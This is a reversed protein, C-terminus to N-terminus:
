KVGGLERRTPWQNFIKGLCSRNLICKTNWTQTEGDSCKVTLVSGDWILGNCAAANIPKAIKSELKSLFGDVYANAERTADQVIKAKVGHRIQMIEPDNPRRSWQANQFWKRTLHYKRMQRANEIRSSRFDSYPATMQADWGAAELETRMAEYNAVEFSVYREIYLARTEAFAADLVADLVANVAPKRKATTM